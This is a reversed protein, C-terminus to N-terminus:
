HDGFVILYKLPINITVEKVNNNNPPWVTIKDKLKFWALYTPDALTNTDNPYQIPRLINIYVSLQKPM